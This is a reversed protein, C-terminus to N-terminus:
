QLHTPDLIRGGPGLGANKWRATDDPLPPAHIPTADHVELKTVGVGEAAPRVVVTFEKDPSTPIRVQEFTVTGYHAYDGEIMRGERVRARVYKAVSDAPVQGSAYVVDGFAADIRMVRPIALGFATATGELLEGSGLHDIPVSASPATTSAAAVVTVAPDRNCACACAISFVVLTKM